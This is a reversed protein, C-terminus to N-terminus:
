GGECHTQNQNFKKGREGGKKPRKEEKGRWFKARSIDKLHKESCVLQFIGSCFNQLEM